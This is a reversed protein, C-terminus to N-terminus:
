YFELIKLKQRQKRLKTYLGKTNILYNRAEQANFDFDFFYKLVEISAYLPVFHFEAFFSNSLLSYTKRCNRKTCRFCFSNIKYKNYKNLNLKRNCCQCQEYPNLYKKNINYNLDNQIDEM